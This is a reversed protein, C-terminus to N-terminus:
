KAMELTETEVEGRLLRSALEQTETETENVLMQYFYYYKNM